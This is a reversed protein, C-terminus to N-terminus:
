LKPVPTLPTGPPIVRDPADYDEVLHVGFGRQLEWEARAAWPTGAHNKIVEQFMATAREVYPKIKDGTITEKRTAIEWGVHTLNPSKKKPVVKPKKIFEELYAGYEFMRAQYAIVQAYMLDYNAQWRPSDEQRRQREMKAITQEVRALYDIYVLAKAQEIRAQQVFTPYDPSFHVRMVIIKAAQENYPNLDYIVKELMSRLPSNDIEAKVELKSRLDPMYRRMQELVYKRKQGHVLDTELSPLMFFIGGTERGLRSCEYPGFGSPHADYRRRFGDTQLQEVFATEPGRDIPIWHVHDTQPHVWRVHAYPYGFVAERGLVYLKCRAAKAEAIARELNNDNDIRDGSEDTLVILAMQRDTRQCYPRFTTISQGIATCMIERGSPDVPVEDIMARIEVLDSTPRRTHNIWNSGFSTVATELADNQGRGLLGLQRYVHEIRDRIEKQDNKMSESQDFNWIVLVKGKELMWLIEQTIQDLAEQYSDVVARADGVTGDPAQVLLRSTSPIDLIVGEINVESDVTQELLAKDIQLAAIAGAPGSAGVEGVIPSSSLVQHTIERVETIQNEIEVAQLEREPEELIEAVVERVDELVQEPVTILGLVILGIMHVGASIFLASSSRITRRLWFCDLPEDDIEDEHQPQSEVPRTPAARQLHAPLPKAVPTRATDRPRAPAAAPSEGSGAPASSRIISSDEM